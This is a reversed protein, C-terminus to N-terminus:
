VTKVMEWLDKDLRFGFDRLLEACRSEIPELGIRVDASQVDGLAAVLLARVDSHTADDSLSLLMISFRGIESRTGLLCALERGDRQATWLARGRSALLSPLEREWCPRAVFRTGYWRLLSADIEADDRARQIHLGPPVKLDLWGLGALNAAYCPMRRTYCYGEREYVRRAPANNDRVELVITQLGSQRASDSLRCMLAQGLGQNQYPPIVAADGCWGREGRVGLIALGAVQSGSDLAVVSRALDVQAVCLQRAYHEVSDHEHPYTLNIASVIATLPVAAATTFTFPLASM